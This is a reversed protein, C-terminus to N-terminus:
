PRLNTFFPFMNCCLVWIECCFFLVFQRIIGAVDRLEFVRCKSNFVIHNGRSKGKLWDALGNVQAHGLNYGQSYIPYTPNNWQYSPHVLRSGYCSVGNGLLGNIGPCSSGIYKANFGHFVGYVSNGAILWDYKLVDLAFRPSVEWSKKSNPAAKSCSASLFCMFAFCFDGSSKAVSASLFCM